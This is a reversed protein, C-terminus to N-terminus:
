GKPAGKKKNRAISAAKKKRWERQYANIKERNEARWERQSANVAEWNEARRKRQYANKKERNEPLALWKRKRAKLEERHTEIYKRQAAAYADPNKDRWKLTAANNYIHPREAMRKRRAALLAERNAKYYKRQAANKAANKAANNKYGMLIKSGGDM